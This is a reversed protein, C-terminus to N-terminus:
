DYDDMCILNVCECGFINSRLLMVLDYVIIYTSYIIIFIFILQMNNEWLVIDTVSLLIVHFLSIFAMEEVLFYLLRIKRVFSDDSNDKM